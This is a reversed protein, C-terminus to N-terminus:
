RITSGPMASNTLMRHSGLSLDTSVYRISIGRRARDTSVYRISIGGHARDTSVHRLTSVYRLTITRVPTAYSFVSGAYPAVLRADSSARSM